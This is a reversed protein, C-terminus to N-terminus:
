KKVMKAVWILIVAGVFAVLISTIDVGTMMDTGTAMTALWGALIGGVIGLVINGVLGMPSKMVKEALFGAIAGVVLWSVINL